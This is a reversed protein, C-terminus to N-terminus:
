KMPVDIKKIKMIIKIEESSGLYIKKHKKIQTHTPM